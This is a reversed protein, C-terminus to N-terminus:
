LECTKAEPSLKGSLEKTKQAQPLDDSPGQPPQATTILGTELGASKRAQNEGSQQQDM